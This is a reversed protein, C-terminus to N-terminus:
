RAGGSDDPLAIRPGDLRDFAKVREQAEGVLPALTVIALVVGFAVTFRKM